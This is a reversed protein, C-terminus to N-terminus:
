TDGLKGLCCTLKRIWLWTPHRTEKWLLGANMWLSSLAAAMQEECRGGTDRISKKPWRGATLCDYYRCLIAQSKTLMLSVLLHWPQVKMSSMRSKKGKVPHWALKPRWGEWHFSMASHYKWCFMSVLSKPCWFLFLHFAVNHKNM